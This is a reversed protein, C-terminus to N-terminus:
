ISEVIAKDLDKLVIDSGAKRLSGVKEDPSPRYLALVKM